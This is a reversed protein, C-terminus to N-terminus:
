SAHPEDDDLRSTASHYDEDLPEELLAQRWYEASRQDLTALFSEPYDDLSYQTSISEAFSPPPTDPNSPRSSTVFSRVSSLDQSVSSTTPSDVTGDPNRFLNRYIAPHPEPGPTIHIAIFVYDDVIEYDTNYGFLNALGIFCKV